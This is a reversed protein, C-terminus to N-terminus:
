GEFVLAMHIHLYPIAVEVRGSDSVHWEVAQGTLADYVRKPLAPLQVSARVPGISPIDEIMEMVRTTGDAEPLAKGRIQPPGYLLHLIHRNHRAQHTLSARGATPLDTALVPEGILRDLLGRILTRYLPQGVARYLRFIPYAVYALRGHRTVADGLPPAAADDPTHQHSSFHAYSRNFYPPYIGALVEAGTSVVTEAADYMVFPTRPLGPDFEPDARVYSPNFAVPEGTRCIGFDLAFAGDSRLMSRWSALVAGGGAVYATLKRVLSPEPPIEDPLILLRYRAFDAEPDIVDFLRHLELLMQAAGDDSPHNRARSEGYHEASVIGIESCQRADEAFPELHAVRAYAPAISSYTDPNIAGSPHLQDGIMCKSGLAVMQACEYELAHPHKFGGFEGWSTHFKGTHALFDLGLTAAYRANLPFHDYGWGGTPLSELELHSYTAFAKTGGKPIHGSNFFIRLGPFEVRLAASIERRFAENVAEDNRLRDRPSEPDLGNARMRELCAECVCDNALLIDFFFGPTDYSRAVERAQELVYDRVGAHSLCLAHWAASLQKGSSADDPRARSFSNSASLARWEPHRRASLEDWQVTIYIPAVINRAALARLMDGMLDARALHPHPTGVRTPYYSWGHHCKAFITVSDVHAAALTDAFVDPEFAAGVGAIHESTHFDLHIQRYRLPTNNRNNM